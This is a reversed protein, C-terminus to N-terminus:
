VGSSVQALRLVARADIRPAGTEKCDTVVLGRGRAEIHLGKEALRAELGEWSRVSALDQRVTQRVREDFPLTARASGDASRAMPWRTRVTRGNRGTSSSHHGAVTRLAM